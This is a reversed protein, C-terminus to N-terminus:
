KIVVIKTQTKLVEGSKHANVIVLYIGSSVGSVNWEYEYAYKPGQGDDIIKPKESVTTEHVLKGSIDYIRIEVREAIGSETHIVPNEKKAPNPYAYVESLKFTPDLNPSQFEKKGEESQGPEHKPSPFLSPSVPISSSNKLSEILTRTDQILIEAVEETIHKKKREKKVEKIFKKLEKRAKDIPNEDNDTDNNDDKDDDKEKDDQELKGALIREVKELRKILKRAVEPKTIMGLQRANTVEEKLLTITVQKVAVIPHGVKGTYTIQVTQIQEPLVIGTIDKTAIETGDISRVTVTYSGLGTGIIELKYTGVEPENVYLHKVPNPDPEGTTDDSIEDFLYEAEPIHQTQLIDIGGAQRGLPDTMLLEIPSKATTILTKGQVGPEYIRVAFIKNNYAQLTTGNVRTDPDRIQWTDGCKSSIVLVWHSDPANKVRALVPFGKKLQTDIDDKLVNESKKSFPSKKIELEESDNGRVWKIVGNSTSAVVGWVINGNDYGTNNKLLDNFKLPTTTNSKYFNILNVISTLVCGKDKIKKNTKNYIDKAWLPNTQKDDPVDQLNPCLTTGNPSNSLGSVNGADDTTKLAFHYPIGSKLGASTFTEGSGAGQPTPENGAQTATVFDMESVIAHDTRYRIDYSKAQGDNGDDGPATWTLTLSSATPNSVVLNMVVSPSVTDSTPPPPPPTVSLTCVNWISPETWHLTSYSQLGTDGRYIWARMFYWRTNPVTIIIPYNGPLPPSLSSYILTELQNPSPYTYYVWTGSPSQRVEPEGTQVVQAASLLDGGVQADVFRGDSIVSFNPITHPFEIQCHSGQISLPASLVQAERINDRGGTGKNSTLSLGKRLQEAYKIFYEIEDQSLKKREAYVSETILGITAAFIFIVQFFRTIKLGPNTNPTLGQYNMRKRSTREVELYLPVNLLKM